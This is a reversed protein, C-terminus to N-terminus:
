IPTFDSILWRNGHKDLSVKVTSATNSPADNGMTTTQNVFVLVVAHDPSASVSAAAPVSAIAAIKKEQAGPIVVDHTLQTYAERFNGTLRDRAANLDREVTDPHYTLIKITGETAAQVSEIRATQTEHAVAIRYKLYAAGCAVVLTIAPLVGVVVLRRWTSLRGHPAAIVASDEQHEGPEGAADADSLQALEDIAASEEDVAVATTSIAVDLSDPPTADDAPATEGEPRTTTAARARRTLRIM